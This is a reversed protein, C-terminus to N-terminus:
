SYGVPSSRRRSRHSSRAPEVLRGVGRPPGLLLLARPPVIIIKEITLIIKEVTPAPAARRSRPAGTAGTSSCEERRGAACTESLAPRSRMESMSRPRPPRRPAAAAAAAVLSALSSAAAPPSRGRLPRHYPMPRTASSVALSASRRHHDAACRGIIRYRGRLPRCM